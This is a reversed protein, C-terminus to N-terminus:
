DKSAFRAIQKEGNKEFNKYIQMGIKEAVKQTPANGWNEVL